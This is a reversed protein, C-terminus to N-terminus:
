GDLTRLQDLSREGSSGAHSQALASMMDGGAVVLGKGFGTGDASTGTGSAFDGDFVSNVININTSNDIRFKSASERQGSVYTYDFEITDFTVNSTQNVYVESFSAMASPDASKITVNSTYLANKLNLVGYDGAALLITEGGTAQSLAQNLESASTVTITTSM